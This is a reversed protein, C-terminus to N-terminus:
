KVMKTFNKKPRKKILETVDNIYEKATIASTYLLTNIDFLKPNDLEKIANNAFFYIVKM